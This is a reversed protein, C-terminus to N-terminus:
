AFTGHIIGTQEEPDAERQECPHVDDLPVAVIARACCRRRASGGHGLATGAVRRARVNRLQRRQRRLLGRARRRARRGRRACRRYRFRRRGGRRHADDGVHEIELDAQLAARQHARVQRLIRVVLTRATRRDTDEVRLFRVIVDRPASQTHQVPTGFRGVEGQVRAGRGLVPERRSCGLQAHRERPRVPLAHRDRLSVHEPRAAVGDLDEIVHVIARGGVPRRRGVHLDRTVDDLLLARHEVDLTEGVAPRRHVVAALIALEVDRVLVIRRKRLVRGVAPDGRHLMVEHADRHRRLALAVM